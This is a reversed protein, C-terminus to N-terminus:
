FPSHKFANSELQFLAYCNFTSKKIPGQHHCNHQLAGCGVLLLLSFKGKQLISGVSSHLCLDIFVVCVRTLFRLQLLHDSSIQSLTHIIPIRAHNLNLKGLFQSIFQFKITALPQSPNWPDEKQTYYISCLINASTFPLHTSQHTSIAQHHLTQM